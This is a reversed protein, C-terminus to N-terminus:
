CMRNCHFNHQQLMNHSPSHPLIHNLKFNNLPLPHLNRMYQHQQYKWQFKRLVLNVPMFFSDDHIYKHQSIIHEFMINSYMFFGDDHIYKHQSISHEFMINSYMFFGDDHIYQDNSYMNLKHLRSYINHHQLYRICEDVYIYINCLYFGNPVHCSLESNHYKDCARL